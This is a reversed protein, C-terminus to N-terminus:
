YHITNSICLKAFSNTTLHKVMLLTPQQQRIQLRANKNASFWAAISAILQGQWTVSNFPLRILQTILRSGEFWAFLRTCMILKQKNKQENNKKKAKKKDVFCKHLLSHVIAHTLKICSLNPHPHLPLLYAYSINLTYKFASVSPAEKIWLELRM